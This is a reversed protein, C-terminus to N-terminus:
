VDGVTSRRDRCVSRRQSRLSQQLGHETRGPHRRVSPVAQKGLSDDQRRVTQRGSGVTFQLLHRGGPLLAELLLPRQRRRPCHVTYANDVIFVLGGTVAVTAISENLDDYSWIRGSQTVDGPRRRTSASWTGRASEDATTRTAASRSTCATTTSSPRPSSTARFARPRGGKIERPYFPAKKYEPPICDFAWIKKLIPVDPVKATPITDIPTMAPVLRSFRFELPLAPKPGGSLLDISRAYEAPTQGGTDKDMVDIFHVIPGRLRTTTWRDRAVPVTPDVPEFAQCFGNGTALLIQAKGRVVGLSPSSYQGRYVQEGIQEDDRAVLQGTRKHFAVLSPSLPNYPIRGPVWSRGNGTCVYVYDGHVLVSSSATHHYYAKLQVLLDYRWAISEISRQTITKKDAAEPKPQGLLRALDVCIVEQYPSVFYLRDGEVTPTSSIAWNEYKDRPPRPCIFTGLLRGTEEDLCLFCAEKGDEWTTGIFVRGESVVPSGTTRHGIKAAWKVNKTALLDVEGADNEEVCKVSDPLSQDCRAAMNRSAQGCWEPWDDAVAMGAGVALAAGICLVNIKALTM